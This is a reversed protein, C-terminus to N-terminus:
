AAEADGSADTSESALAWARALDIIADMEKGAYPEGESGLDHIYGEATEPTNGMYAAIEDKTWRPGLHLLSAGMHRFSYASDAEDYHVGARLLATRVHTAVWDAASRPALGVHDGRSLTFIFSDLPPCGRAVWLAQIEEGVQPWLKIQRKLRNRRTTKRTTKLEGVWAPVRRGYLVHFGTKKTAKVAKAVNLRPLPNGESDLADRFTLALAEQPRLLCYLMLSIALAVLANAGARAREIVHPARATVDRFGGPRQYIEAGRLPHQPVKGLARAAKYVSGLVIAFTAVTSHSQGYGCSEDHGGHRRKRVGAKAKRKRFRADEARQKAECVVCRDLALKMQAETVVGSDVLSLPIHGLMPIIWTEIHRRYGEYTAEQVKGSRAWLDYEGRCFEELTPEEESTSAPAVTAGSGRQRLVNLVDAQAEALAGAEGDAFASPFYTQRFKNKSGRGFGSRVEVKLVVEGDPKVCRTIYKAIRETTVYHSM